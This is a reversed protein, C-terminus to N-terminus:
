VSGSPPALLAFSRWLLLVICHVLVVERQSDGVCAHCSCLYICEASKFGMRLTVSAHRCKLVAHHSRLFKCVIFAFHATRMVVVAYGGGAFGFIHVLLITCPIHLSIAAVASVCSAQPM